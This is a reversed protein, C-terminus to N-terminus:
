KFKGAFFKEPFKLSRLEPTIRQFFTNHLGGPGLKQRYFGAEAIDIQKIEGGRYADNYEHLNHRLCGIESESSSYDHHNVSPPYEATAM